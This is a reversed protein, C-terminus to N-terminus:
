LLALAVFMDVTGRLLFFVYFSCVLFNDSLFLKFHGFFLHHGRGAGAMSNGKVMVIGRVSSESFRALM